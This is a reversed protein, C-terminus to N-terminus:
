GSLVEYLHRAEHLVLSTGKRAAMEKLGDIKGRAGALTAARAAVGLLEGLGARPREGDSPMLRPLAVALM